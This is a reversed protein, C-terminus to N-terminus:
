SRRLNNAPKFVNNSCFPWKEIGPGAIEQCKESDGISSDRWGTGSVLPLDNWNDDAGYLPEGHRLTPM